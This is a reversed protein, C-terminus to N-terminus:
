DLYSCCSEYFSDDENYDGESSADTLDEEDSINYLVNANMDVTIERRRFDKYKSDTVNSAKAKSQLYLIRFGMLSVTVILLHVDFYLMLLLIGLLFWPLLLIIVAKTCLRSRKEAEKGNLGVFLLTAFLMQYLKQWAYMMSPGQSDDNSTNKKKGKLFKYYSMAM